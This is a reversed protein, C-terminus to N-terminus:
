TTLSAEKLHTLRHPQTVLVQKGEDIVSRDFLQVVTVKESEFMM